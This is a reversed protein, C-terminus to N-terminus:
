PACLGAYEHAGISTPLTRITKFADFNSMLTPTTGGEAITCPVVNPKLKFHGAYMLDYGNSSALWGEFVNTLPTTTQIVSGKAGPIVAILQAETKVSVAPPGGDCFKLALDSNSGTLWANNSFDAFAGTDALCQLYITARREADPFMGALLNNRITTGGATHLHIAPELPTTATPTRGSLITNGVIQTGQVAAVFIGETLDGNGAKNGALFDNSFIEHDSGGTIRIGFNYNRTPVSVSSTSVDGGYIRNRHVRLKGEKASGYTTEIGVAACGQGCTPTGASIGNDFIDVNSRSIALGASGFPVNPADAGGNGGLIISREITVTGAADTIIMGVSPASTTGVVGQGNIQDDTFRGSGTAILDVGASGKTGTGGNVRTKDIWPAGRVGIVIGRSQEGSGAFITSDLVHPAADEVVQLAVNVGKITLRELLVDKTAAGRVVLTPTSPTTSDIIVENTPSYTPAGGNASQTWTSCEYDGRLAVPHDLVLGSEPYTGRCIHIEHGQANVAKVRAIAGGITRKPNKSSCGSASDNGDSAVFVTRERCGTACAGQLCYQDEACVVGCAGCNNPDSTVNAGCADGGVGGENSPGPTPQVGGSLNDLSSCAAGILLFVVLGGWLRM